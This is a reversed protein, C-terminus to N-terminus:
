EVEEGLTGMKLDLDGQMSAIRAGLRQRLLSNSQMGMQQRLREIEKKLDAVEERIQQKEQQAALADEDIEEEEEDEEAADEEDSSANDDNDSSPSSAPVSTPHPTPTSLPTANASTMNVGAPLNSPAITTTASPDNAAAPTTATANAASAPDAADANSVGAVGADVAEGEADEDGSGELGAEMMRELDEYDDGEYYAEGVPVGNDDALMEEDVEGEADESDDRLKALDLLTYETTGGRKKAKEDEALLREVEDEVAEITRYSVRKRFRRKRVWHMPPTLGHAYQWTSQEIERPLQMAKAADENPVQGLVLLMQCIDASKWWGRRDWSKMAEIICPLDVLTAAYHRGRITVMARRGERDFFRMHVDAGGDKKPVGVRKEEIAKRLYECDEGPQMRLIFQHEIAPDIEVDEAESDYGVGPPRPPPVGQHKV